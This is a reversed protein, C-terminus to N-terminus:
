QVMRSVIVMLEVYVLLFSPMKEMLISTMLVVRTGRTTTTTTNKNTQKKMNHYVGFHMIYYNTHMM